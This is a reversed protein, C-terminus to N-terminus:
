LYNAVWSDKPKKKWANLLEKKTSVMNDFILVNPQKLADSNVTPKILEIGNKTEIAVTLRDFFDISFHSGLAKVFHVSKDISCGSASAHHEDVMVVIHVQNLVTIAAQLDKGHSNWNSVFQHAENEIAKVEQESLLRDAQYIWVRTHDPLTNWDM